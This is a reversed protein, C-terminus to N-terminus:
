RTCHIAINDPLNDLIRNFFKAINEESKHDPFTQWRNTDGGAWIGQEQLHNLINQISFSLRDDSFLNKLFRSSEHQNLIWRVAATDKEVKPDM